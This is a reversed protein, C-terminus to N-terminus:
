HLIVTPTAKLAEYHKSLLKSITPKTKEEGKLKAVYTKAVDFEVEVSACDVLDLPPQVM